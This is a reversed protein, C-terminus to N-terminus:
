DGGGTRRKTWRTTAQLELIFVKRLSRRCSALQSYSACLATQFLNITAAARACVCAFVQRDFLTARSLNSTSHRLLSAIRRPARSVFIRSTVKADHEDRIEVGVSRVAVPRKKNKIPLISFNSRCSRFNPARRIEFTASSAFPALSAKLCATHPTRCM